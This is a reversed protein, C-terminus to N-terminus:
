KRDSSPMFTKSLKEVVEKDTFLLEISALKNDNSLGILVFANSELVEEVAEGFSILLSGERYFDLEAIYYKKEEFEYTARSDFRSYQTDVQQSQFRIIETSISTLM